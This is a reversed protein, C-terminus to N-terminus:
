TAGGVNALNHRLLVVLLRVLVQSSTSASQRHKDMANTRDM